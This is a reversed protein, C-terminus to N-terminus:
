YSKNMKGNFVKPPLSKLGLKPTLIMGTHIHQSIDLERLRCGGSVHEGEEDSQHMDMKLEQRLHEVEELKGQGGCRFQPSEKTSM